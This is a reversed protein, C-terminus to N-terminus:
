IVQRCIGCEKGKNKGSHLVTHCTPPPPPPPPRAPPPTRSRRRRHPSGLVLDLVEDSPLNVSEADNSQAHGMTTQSIKPIVWIKTSSIQKQSANIILSTIDPICPRYGQRHGFSFLLSLTQSAFDSVLCSLNIFIYVAFLPVSNSSLSRRRLNLHSFLTSVNSCVCRWVSKISISFVCQTLPQLCASCYM